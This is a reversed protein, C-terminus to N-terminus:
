QFIRSAKSYLTTSCYWGEVILRDLSERAEEKSIFGSSVLQRLLWKTGRHKIKEVKCVARGYSEDMIAIGNESFALELVDMEGM